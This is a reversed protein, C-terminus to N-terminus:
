VYLSQNTVVYKLTLTKIENLKSLFPLNNTNEAIKEMECVINNIKLLAKVFEGLFVGKELELKQLLLKCESINSCNCWEMAYDILDYHIDYDTGTNLQYKEEKKFYKEYQDAINKVIIEVKSDHSYPNISKYDDSVNINTFCSLIGVLQKSTCEDFVNQEIMCAFVLCHIEKLHNAIFGKQTLEYLITNNEEQKKIIVNDDCLFDIISNVNKNLYKKTLEYNEKIKEHEILKNNYEQAIKIDSKIFRHNEEIDQIRREVEKKKKNVVFKRKDILEIYEDIVQKPTQLHNFGLEMHEIEKEIKELSDTIAGLENNIDNQIMSRETFENFNNNGIDILNLILNFSIKFKSVLTQPRGNMMNKYSTCDINRFLNNLHIVNGVTDIHRRGARGAMQTYEHSYLLRMSDGDFKNVDTFIVTKTPMNLGISFTETGFLLKIYGKSYLIEILERFVATVGSHHIAIGKELLAVMEIYEPLELYEEYNPLKRIIQECERRIIYPTKSDDELLVTTIERACIEIQKRSLVFCLAPLMNNDVLYKCVQNLIHTRKVYVEKDNFLNLMKHMKYYHTENFVGKSSQIEFPKNIISKIEQELTKDKILKFIANNVTIFSYHTLPVIRENTFTLYVIKKEIETNINNEKSEIWSAFKHPKDITASLMVMQIHYPLMMISQEWVHGRSKDNIMHIEDFIVCGLENEIDMDFSIASNVVQSKSNIQYLKNLLIETTMILVQADPNTKIDGTLIGVSVNPFKVTFENFKQNSLAKIPSTYIVKKGKETFYDIAFEACLTKGSGTHACVLSHHGKVTSEISFKQFSSLEYNYKEFYNIYINENESPYQNPCNYVM